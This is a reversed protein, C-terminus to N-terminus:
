YEVGVVEALIAPAFGGVNTITINNTTPSYIKLEAVSSLGALLIQASTTSTDIEIGRATYEAKIGTGDMRFIVDDYDRINKGAPLTLSIAQATGSTVLLPTGFSTLTRGGVEKIGRYLTTQLTNNSSSENSFGSFSPEITAEYREQHYGGPVPYEKGVHRVINFVITGEAVEIAFRRGLLLADMDNRTIADPFTFDVREGGAFIRYGIGITAPSAPARGPDGASYPQIEAQWEMDSAYGLVPAKNINSNLKSGVASDFKTEDITGTKIVHGEIRKDNNSDDNNLSNITGTVENATASTLNIVGSSNRAAAVIVKSGNDNGPNPLFQASEIATSGDSYGLVVKGNTVAATSVHKGSSSGSSATARYLTPTETNYTASVRNVGSDLAFNAAYRERHHSSDIGATDEYATPTFEIVGSTTKFAFNRNLVLADVAAKDTAIPFIFDVTGSTGTNGVSYALGISVGTGTPVVADDYTQIDVTWEMDTVLSEIAKDAGSGSGANADTYANAQTLIAQDKSDIDARPYTFAKDDSSHRIDETDAYNKAATLIAQDKADIATTESYASLDTTGSGSANLKTQVETTLTEEAITGTQILTGRIKLNNASSDSLSNIEATVDASTSGLLRKEGGVRKVQILTLSGNTSGPDPLWDLELGTSNDNYGLKIKDDDSNDLSISDVFKDNDDAYTQASTLTTADGDTIASSLGTLNLDDQTDAYDKAAQLDDASHAADQTDAYLKAANLTNTDGTTAFTNAASINTSDAAMLEQEITRIHNSNNDVLLRIPTHKNYYYTTKTNETPIINIDPTSSFGTIQRQHYENATNPNFTDVQEAFGTIIIQQTSLTEGSEILHIEKGKLYNLYDFFKNEDSYRIWIQSPNKSKEIIISPNTFAPATGTVQFIDFTADADGEGSYVNLKEDIDAAVEDETIFKNGDKNLVSGDKKVSLHLNYDDADDKQSDDLIRENFGVGFYTDADGVKANQGFVASRPTAAVTGYGHSSAGAAKAITLRGEAHASDALAKNNSGEAHASTESAENNNGETHSYDGSSTNGKGEAHAGEASATNGDGEVNAWKGTITSTVANYNTFRANIKVWANNEYVYIDKLAINATSVVDAHNDDYFVIVDANKPKEFVYTANGDDDLVKKVYQRANDNDSFHTDPTPDDSVVYWEEDQVVNAQVKVFNETASSVRVLRFASEPNISGGGLDDSSLIEELIQAMSERIGNRNSKSKMKAIIASRKSKSFAM